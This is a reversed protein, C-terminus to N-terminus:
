RKPPPTEVPSPGVARGSGADDRFRAVPGAPPEATPVADGGVDEESPAEVPAEAATVDPADLGSPVDSWVARVGGGLAVLALTLLVPRLAM